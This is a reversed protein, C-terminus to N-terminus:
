RWGNRRFAFQYGLKIIIIDKNEKTTKVGLCADGGKFVTIKVTKLKIQGKKGSADKILMLNTFSIVVSTRYKWNSCIFM